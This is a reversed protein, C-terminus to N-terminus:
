FCEWYVWAVRELIYLGKEAMEKALTSKRHIQGKSLILLKLPSEEQFFLCASEDKLGLEFKVGM